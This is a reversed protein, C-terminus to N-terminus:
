IALIYTPPDFEADDDAEYTKWSKFAGAKNNSLWPVIEDLDDQVSGLIERALNEAEIPDFHTLAVKRIILRTDPFGEIHEIHATKLIESATM